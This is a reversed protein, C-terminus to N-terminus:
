SFKQKCDARNRAVSDFFYGATVKGNIGNIGELARLFSTITPSEAERM